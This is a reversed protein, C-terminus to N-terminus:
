SCNKKSLLICKLFYITIHWTIDWLFYQPTKDSYLLTGMRERWLKVLPVGNGHTGISYNVIPVANGRTGGRFSWQWPTTLLCRSSFTM